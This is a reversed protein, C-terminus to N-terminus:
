YIIISHTCLYLVYCKIKIKIDFNINGCKCHPLISINEVNNSPCLNRKLNLLQLRLLTVRVLVRNLHYVKGDSRMAPGEGVSRYSYKILFQITLHMCTCTPSSKACSLDPSPLLAVLVFFSFILYTYLPPFGDLCLRRYFILKHRLNLRWSALYSYIGVMKSEGNWKTSHLRAIVFVNNIIIILVSWRSQTLERNSIHIFHFYLALFRFIHSNGVSLAIWIGAM